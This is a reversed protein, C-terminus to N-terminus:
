KSKLATIHIIFFTPCFFYPLSSSVESVTPRLGKCVLRHDLGRLSTNRAGNFDFTSDSSLLASFSVKESASKSLPMVNGGMQYDTADKLYIELVFRFEKM